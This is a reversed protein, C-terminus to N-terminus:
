KRRKRENPSKPLNLDYGNLDEAWGLIKHGWKETFFEIHVPDFEGLRFADVTWFIRKGSTDHGGCLFVHGADDAPAGIRESYVPAGYPIDETDGTWEHFRVSKERAETATGYKMALQWATRVGQLCRRPPFESAATAAWRRVTSLADGSNIPANPLGLSPARVIPKAPSKKATKKAVAKEAAKRATVAKRTRTTM